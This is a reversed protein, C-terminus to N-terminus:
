AAEHEGRQSKLAELQAAIAPNIILDGDDDVFPEDWADFAWENLSELAGDAMLGHDGVLKGFEDRTWSRRAVLARALTRHDSELADLPNGSYQEDTDAAALQEDDNGEDSFIEDLVVSAKTTDSLIADVRDMDLSFTSRATDQEPSNPLSYGAPTARPRVTVPEHAPRATMAHLDSFVDGDDLALAKYLKKLANVEGPDINGDAGAVAVALRALVQRLDKPLDKLHRRLDGLKPKVHLAWKLNAKLRAKEAESLRRVHDIEEELRRREHASVAGDAHAVFAGLMVSLLVGPYHASTNQLKTNGGVPAFLVIPEGLRPARLAYRPDPAFGIGLRALADAVTALAKRSVKPPRHGELRELLLDVQVLGDNDRIIEASWDKLEDLERNPLESALEPPLLAHGEITDRGNPNRGLYRSFSDLDDMCSEAIVSLKRIPGSVNSIDPVDGLETSLDVEFSGSAARYRYRLRAKPERIHLGDPYRESLRLAFLRSFEAFARKAPMRVRTEPHDWWWALLWDAEPRIGQRIRRGIALRTALPIEWGPSGLAPKSLEPAGDLVAVADLLAASYRRFSGNDGFVAQLRRLEAAILAREQAGCRDLLVRRELGYLFLFVYGIGFDKNKRGSSLWQLYALRSRVDIQSYSPWYPMLRGEVDPESRAVPLKPDILCNDPSNLRQAKLGRGVYVMGGIIQGAVEATNDAPVWFNDGEQTVPEAWSTHSGAHVSVEFDILSGIDDSAARMAPRIPAIPETRGSQSGASRLVKKARATGGPAAAASQRKRWRRRVFFLAVGIIALWIIWTAGDETPLDQSPRFGTRTGITREATATSRNEAATTAPGPTATGPVTQVGGTAPSLPTERAIENTQSPAASPIPPVVREDQFGPDSQIDGPIILPRPASNAVASGLARLTEATLEGTEALGQDRQFGRLAAATNPGMLGDAPGPEYGLEQLTTQADRVDASQAMASVGLILCALLTLFLHRM